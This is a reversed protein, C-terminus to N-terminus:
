LRLRCFYTLLATARAASNSEGEDGLDIDSDPDQMSEDDSVPSSNFDDDSDMNASMSTQPTAPLAAPLAATDAAADLTQKKHAQEPVGARDLESAKRKRTAHTSPTTLKTTALCLRAQSSSVPSAPPLPRISHRRFDPVRAPLSLNSLASLGTRCAVVFLSLLLLSLSINTLQLLLRTVLPSNTSGPNISMAAISAAGHWGAPKNLRKDKIPLPPAPSHPKRSRRATDGGKDDIDALQVDCATCVLRVFLLRPVMTTFLKLGQQNSTHM